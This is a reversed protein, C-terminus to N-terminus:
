VPQRQGRPSTPEAPLVRGEAFARCRPRLPCEFCRPRRARCVVAGVDVLALSFERAGRRPLLEEVFRWLSADDRPRAKTSRRGLVRDLLRIVNPDLLPRRQNFAVALVANAAYEGVGPLALLRSKSRPVRGEHREVLARGLEPLRASRHLFGLPRLLQVLESPEAAALQEPTPYEALFHEYIPAVLDARTRQLLLEAVLVAYPDRTRRWAFDRGSERFWAFVRRRLWQPQAAPPSQATTEIPRGVV